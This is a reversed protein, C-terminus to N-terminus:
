YGLTSALYWILIENGWVLAIYAGISLFPGFPITAGFSKKKLVILGISFMSGVLFALFLGLVINPFGLVLGLFFVYKVDGWGMGRGKTILILFIFFLSAGLGSLVSLGVPRWIFQLSELFNNNLVAGSLSAEAMNLYLSISYYLSILFLWAISILSAPYTILDFIYGSKIDTLFVIELIVVVFTKFLSDLLDGNGFIFVTSVLVGTLIEVILFEKPIPNKCHRCHGSLVLYSVIPVLDFWSLSRKCHDCYSRGKLSKDQVLRVSTAEIFSGLIAGLLFGFVGLPFIM